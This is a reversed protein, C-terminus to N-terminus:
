RRAIIPLMLRYEAQFLQMAPDGQLTFSYLESDALDLATYGLKAYLIADGIRSLHGETLGDYFGTHLVTHEYSLGLGASSWQAAVGRLNDLRMWTESLSDMAPWAFHGDWCDASLVFTPKGFNQWFNLHDSATSLIAPSAWTTPSGHGRYNFIAAGDNNLNQALLDRFADTQEPTPQDGSIAGEDFCLHTQQYRDPVHNGVGENEQCFFGAGPDDNDAAFLMNQQWPAEAAAEQDFRIIKDVAANADALTHASIRGIAMDAVVDDGSLLVLSHDSIIQGQWRDVFAFETAIYNEETTSWTNCAGPPTPCNIHLPNMTGDGLLLVYRPAVNWGALAHRLYSRIAEPTHFGYGYQNIIDQITVVHTRLGGYAADARHTALRNAADAFDSHTIVLWDAALGPADLNSPRYRSIPPSTHINATTTALFRGNEGGVLYTFAGNEAVVQGASLPIQAPQYPNSINWVLANSSNGDSFGQVRFTKQGSDNSFLLQDSSARLQRTYDVQIENLYYSAISSTPQASTFTLHVDNSGNRLDAAPVTHSINHNHPSIQTTTNVTAQNNVSLTTDYSYNPISPHKRGMIEATVIADPASSVPYPLEIPVTTTTGAASHEMYQWFFMDPENPSQNWDLQWGSFYYIDDGFTLHDRFSTANSYGPQSAHNTQSSVATEAGGAWLWFINTDAYLKEFRTGNFAWGYFRIAEGPEFQNDNDGIIQTAVPQGRHLMVITHPNVSAVNMGAAQLDAYSIDYLGDETVEIKFTDVGIPLETAPTQAVNAPLQRWAQLHQPNFVATKLMDLAPDAVPLHTPVIGGDFTIAVRLTQSQQLWGSVPNYRLPFLQLRVLRVDRYMMPASITYLAHPYLTNSQYIAPDPSSDIGSTPVTSDLMDSGSPLAASNALEPVAMPAVFGAETHSLDSPTVTVTASAQPPLAILTTYYPLAPAGATTITQDLGPISFRGNTEEALPTTLTFILEQSSSSNTTAQTTPSVATQERFAQSAQTPTLLFIFAVILCFFNILNKM